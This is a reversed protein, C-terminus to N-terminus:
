QYVSVTDDAAGGVESSRSPDTPDQPQRMEEIEASSSRHAAGFPVIVQEELLTGLKYDDDTIDVADHGSTNQTSGRKSASLNPGRIARRLTACGTKWLSWEPHKQRYRLYRPRIYIMANLFGQAPYFITMCMIAWFPVNTSFAQFVRVITAFLATVYFAFIYLVAQTAVKKTNGRYNNASYRLSAREQRAVTWVVTLMSVTVIALSAWYWVYFFLMRYLPYQGDIWCWLNANGFLGLAASVASTGVAMSLAASHLWPEMQQLRRETWGFRVVAVFYLALFSNYFPLGAKLQIFFGQATCTANTGVNGYLEDVYSPVPWTSLWWASSIVVDLCSLGLMLRHYILGLKKRDRLVELIIWSSGLISLGASFKPGLALAVQQAHTHPM